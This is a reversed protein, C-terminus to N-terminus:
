HAKGDDPAQQRKANSAALASVMEQAWEPADELMAMAEGGSVETDVQLLLLLVPSTLMHSQPVDAHWTLLLFAVALLLTTVAQM